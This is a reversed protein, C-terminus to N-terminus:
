LGLEHTAEERMKYKQIKGTVTMPFVDVFKVYRPIKFHAIKGQCFDRLGEEDLSEGDVLKVWAMVAEGYKEDPVGIVQVDSIA